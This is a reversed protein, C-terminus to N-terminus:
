KWQPTNEQLKLAVVQSCRTRMIITIIETMDMNMIAVNGMMTMIINTTAVNRTMTMIINTTAVNKTMTMIISMTATINKEFRANKNM